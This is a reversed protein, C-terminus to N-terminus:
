KQGPKKLTRKKGPEAKEAPVDEPNIKAKDWHILLPQPDYGILAGSYRFYDKKNFRTAGPEGTIKLEVNPGTAADMEEQSAGTYMEFTVSGDAAPTMDVIRGPVDQFESGCVALWTMKAKDGGTKLDAIVTLITSSQRIKNLDDASPISYTAPRDAASGALQIMENMQADVVNDCGAQEYDALRKRLYDRVQAEGPGKLAISRALAWFGDMSQPPAQQLYAVGLRFYTIGDTPNDKLAAQFSDVAAKYDKLQLAAFGATYNFLASPAKKQQDFQDQTMTDPKPLAGLTKLGQMAADRAHKLEDAANPDNEKFAFNFALARIYLAQLQTGMDEKPDSAAVYKDAFEVVKPYNKLDNYTGYDLQYIYKMLTSSPWKAVFDELLKIRAQPNTEARAAQYANYEPITYAPQQGQQPSYAAAPLVSLCLFCGLTLLINVALWKRIM